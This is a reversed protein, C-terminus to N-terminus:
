ELDTIGQRIAYKTLEAVSHIALKEMINHRHTEVTKVSIGLATATDKTSKGESILQLVERERPTLNAAAAVPQRHLGPGGALADAARRSLFQRGALVTRIAETLEEFACDKLMYGCAGAELMRDIYERDAHMSLAIVKVDPNAQLIQRTAEVGNLNPMSVDMVIVTPSLEGALQVARRGDEAEAVVEMSQQRNILSRLGQRIIGHDDALIIRTKMTRCGGPPRTRGAPAGAAHRHHGPRAPLAAGAARRGQGDARARQVPRLRRGRARAPGARRGRLGRRRGGRAGRRLRGGRRRVGERPVARRAQRRQGAAGPRGPVAGGAGRRESAQAARRGRVAHPHRVQKEMNETLRSLAAELGMEYLIPPSLDFVLTRTYDLCQQIFGRVEELQGSTQEDGCTEQVLGLKIRSLALTQAIGDHLASAIRRREQEEILSTRWALARLAERYEHLREDTAKHETVDRFVVQVAPRGHFTVPLSISEIDREQGDHRLVRLELPANTLHETEARHIREQVAARFDPHVVGLVPQGLVDQPSDFGLVLAAAGNAFAIRGEALVIIPDPSLEVLTRYREESQRLSEEARKRDTIDFAVGQWYLPRGDDDCILAADDRFWVVSGDPRVIRYETVLDRRDARAARMEAVIRDRDEPHVQHLWLDAEQQYREAPHGLLKEAQPSVYLPTAQDDLAAAYTVAPVDEILMRYRAESARLEQQAAVQDTVDRGM